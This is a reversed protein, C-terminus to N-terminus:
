ETRANWASARAEDGRHPGRRHHLRPLRRLRVERQTSLRTDGRDPVTISGFPKGEANAHTLKAAGPVTCGLRMTRASSIPWNWSPGCPLRASMTSTVARFPPRTPRSCATAFPVCPAVTWSAGDPAMWPCTVPLGGRFGDHHLNRRQVLPHQRPERPVRLLEQATAEHQRLNGAVATCTDTLVASPRDPVVSTTTGASPVACTVTSRWSVPEIVPLSSPGPPLGTPPATWISKKKKKKRPM